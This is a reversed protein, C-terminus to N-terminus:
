IGIGDLIINLDVVRRDLGSNGVAVECFRVSALDEGCQILVATEAARRNHTIILYILVAISLCEIIECPTDVIHAGDIKGRANLRNSVRAKCKRVVCRVITPSIGKVRDVEGCLYCLVLRLDFLFDGIGSLVVDMIRIHREAISYVELNRGRNQACDAFDGFM